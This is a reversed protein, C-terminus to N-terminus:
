PVRRPIKTVAIANLRTFVLGIKIPIITECAATIPTNQKLVM